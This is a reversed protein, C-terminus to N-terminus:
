RRKSVITGINESIKQISDKDEDDVVAFKDEGLAALKSESIKKLALSVGAVAATIIEIVPGEFDFPSLMSIIFGTTSTKNLNRSFENIKKWREKLKDNKEKTSDIVITGASTNVM